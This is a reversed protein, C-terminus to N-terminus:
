HIKKKEEIKRSKCCLKEIFFYIGFTVVLIVIINVLIVDLLLYTFLSLNAAHSKLHKAGRFKIVHEIWWVFEDMPHVINDSFLSAIEKARMAYKKDTLMENLADHLTEHTIDQFNLRKAYGAEQARFANRFHDGLVPIVLMQIGYNIAESNSFMGGHSIFLIVNPHALIDNQPLWKRILVNEPQNPISGDEFKWIVRQKLRRFSDVCFFSIKEGNKQTM